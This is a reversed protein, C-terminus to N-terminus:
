RAAHRGAGGQTLGAPGQEVAALVGRPAASRVPTSRTLRTQPRGYIRRPGAAPARAALGLAAGSIGFLALPLGANTLYPWVMTAAPLFAIVATLVMATSRAPGEAGRAHRLARVGLAVVTTWGLALLGVGGRLVWTINENETADFLVGEPTDTGLGLPAAQAMLPLYDRQWILFRYQLTQPAAGGATYATQTQQAQLRDALVTPFALVAAVGLATLVALARPLRRALVSAVLVAFPLWILLTVTVSMILATADVALVVLLTRRRLLSWDGRLLLLLALATPIVLYGGLSHWIPFPGTVRPTGGGPRAMLGGGVLTILTARVGPIDFYQLVAAGAPVVSSALVWRLVVRVDAPGEVGRSATWWALLLFLPQLGTRLGELVVVDHRAVHYGALLVGAAAFATVAVDVGSVARWRSPRRLVLAAACVLILLQPAKLGAVGGASVGAVAPAVAAVVVAGVVPRWWTVVALLVAVVVAFPGAPTLLASAGAAAAVVAAALVAAV